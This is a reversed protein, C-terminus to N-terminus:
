CCGYSCLTFQQYTLLSIEEASTLTDLSVFWFNNFDQFTHWIPLSQYCPSNLRSLLLSLSFRLLRYLLNIYSSSLLPLLCVEIPSVWHCPLLWHALVSTCSVENEHLIYCKLQFTILCHFYNVLSATFPRDKSSNLVQSSMTGPVKRYIFRNLM